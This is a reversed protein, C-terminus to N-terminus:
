LLQGIVGREYKALTKRILPPTYERGEKTIEVAWYLDFPACRMAM